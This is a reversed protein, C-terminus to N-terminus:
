LSSREKAGTAGISLTSTSTPERLGGEQQAVLHGVLASLAAIQQLLADQLGPPISSAAAPAPPMPRVGGAASATTDQLTKVRPPPALLAAHEAVPLNRSTRHSRLYPLLQRPPGKSCMSKWPRRASHDASGHAPWDPCDFKGHDCNRQRHRRRMQKPSARRLNPGKRCKLLPGGPRGPRAAALSKSGSQMAEHSAGRDGGGGPGDPFRRLDGEALVKISFLEM